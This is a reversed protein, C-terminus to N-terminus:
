PCCRKSVDLCSHEAEADMKVVSISRNSAESLPIEELKLVQRAEHLYELTSAGKRTIEYYSIGKRWTKPPLDAGLDPRATFKRMLGQSILWNVTLKALKWSVHAEHVIDTSNKAGGSVLSLIELMADFRTRRQTM